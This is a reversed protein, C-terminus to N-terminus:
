SMVCGTDGEEEEEEEEEDASGVEMGDQTEHVKVSAQQAKRGKAAKTAKGAVPKEALPKSPVGLSTGSALEALKDAVEPRQYVPASELLRQAEEALNALEAHGAEGGLAHAGAISLLLEWARDEASAITVAALTSESADACALDVDNIGDGNYCARRSTSRKSTRSGGM